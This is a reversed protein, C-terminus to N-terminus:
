ETDGEGLLFIGEIEVCQRAVLAAVGMTSRAHRGATEGYLEYFLDSAGNIVQNPAEFDPDANVFGTLKVVQAVRDLSGVAQRITALMKLAVGRASRYAEQESVESPVKGRRTLSEDELLGSGHGSLYLTRGVRMFPQRNSSPLKLPAPLTLGMASLKAEIAETM